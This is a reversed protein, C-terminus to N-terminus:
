AERTAFRSLIAGVALALGGGAHLYVPVFVYALAETSSTGDMAIWYAYVTFALMALAAIAGAAPVLRMSAFRGLVFVLVGVLLYPSIAWLMFAVAGADLASADRSMSGVTLAAGIVLLLYTLNKIM